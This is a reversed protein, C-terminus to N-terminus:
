FNRANGLLKQNHGEKLETPWKSAGLEVLNTIKKGTVTLQFDNLWVSDKFYQWGYVSPVDLGKKLHRIGHKGTTLNGISWESDLITM